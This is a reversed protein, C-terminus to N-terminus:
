LLKASIYNRIEQIGSPKRIYGAANISLALEEIQEYASHIIVPINKLEHHKRFAKIIDRSNTDGVFHDIIILDPNFAQVTDFLKVPDAESVIDYQKHLIRTLLDLMELDDDLIMIRKPM